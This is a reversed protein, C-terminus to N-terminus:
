RSSCIEQFYPFPFQITHEASKRNTESEWVQYPIQDEESLLHDSLLRQILSRFLILHPLVYVAIVSDINDTQVPFFLETKYM